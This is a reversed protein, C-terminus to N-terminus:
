WNNRSFYCTKEVTKNHIDFKLENDIRLRKYQASSQIEIPSGNCHLIIDHTIVKKIPPLVLAETKTLNITLISANMWFYAKHM